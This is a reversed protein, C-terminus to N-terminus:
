FYKLHAKFVTKYGAALFCVLFFCQPYFFDYFEDDLTQKSRQKKGCVIPM